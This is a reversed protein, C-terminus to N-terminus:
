GDLLWQPVSSFPNTGIMFCTSKEPNFTLGHDKIYSNSVDMLHQLGSVTASCLLLDDAYCICNFHSSEITVGVGSSQILEVLDCYILNFLLPSTLGGQKTGRKVEIKESLETGWKIYVCLNAYWEYLLLWIHDPVKDMAKKLIVAHPLFDYAGQADLSCYFVTTGNSVCYSGIDHALTTAMNTDCGKVYGFQAKNIGFVCHDLIYLELIKSLVCSITIPRYSSPISPDSTAKKIIPVLLGNNFQDPIIGDCICLSFLCSLHLPLNSDMAYMLHEATIGDYLAASNRKLQNIYIKINAVSVIINRREADRHKTNVLTTYKTCVDRRAYELVNSNVAPDSFRQKFYKVLTETNIADGANPNQKTSRILNWFKKSKRERYMTEILTTIRQSKTQVARRCCRRYEKVLQEIVTMFKAKVQVGM